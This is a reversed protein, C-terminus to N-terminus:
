LADLLIKLGIAILIAGGLMESYSKFIRNLKNGLLAGFFSLVFAFVGIVITPALIGANIASMGVGAVLADISTAVALATMNRWQLIENQTKCIHSDKKNLSEFIMNVGILTLLAFAVWHGWVNLYVAFARGALWGFFTMAAQFGGFYAGFLLANSRKINKIAAGNAIAVAFADMALAFAIVIIEYIGM